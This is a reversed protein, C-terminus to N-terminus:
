ICASGNAACIKRAEANMDPDSKVGDTWVSGNWNMSGALQGNECYVNCTGGDKSCSGGNSTRLQYALAPSTAVLLALAIFGAPVLKSASM